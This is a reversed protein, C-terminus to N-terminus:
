ARPAALAEILLKRLLPDSASRLANAKEDLRGVTDKLQVLMECVIESRWTASRPAHGAGLRGHSAPLACRKSPTRWHKPTIRDCKDGAFDKAPSSSCRLPSLLDPDGAPAFPARPKSRWRLIMISSALLHRVGFAHRAPLDLEDMFCYDLHCAACLARPYRGGTGSLM